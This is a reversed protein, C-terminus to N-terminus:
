CQHKEHKEVLERLEFAVELMAKARDPEWHAKHRAAANSLENILTKLDTLINNEL